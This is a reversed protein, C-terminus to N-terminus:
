KKFDLFMNKRGGSLLNKEGEAVFMQIYISIREGRKEYKEGRTFPVTARSNVARTKKMLLRCIPGQNM